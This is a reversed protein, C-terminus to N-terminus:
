KLIKCAKEVDEDQLGYRSDVYVLHKSFIPHELYGERWDDDLIVYKSSTKSFWPNDEFWLEMAESKNLHWEHTLDDIIKKSLLKRLKPLVGYFIKGKYEWSPRPDEWRRWNSSIIIKAHPYAQLIKKLRMFNMESIGYTKPNECLYSSGDQVNTLVGDIDLFLLRGDKGVLKKPTTSLM